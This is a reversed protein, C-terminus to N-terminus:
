LDLSEDFIFVVPLEDTGFQYVRAAAPQVEEVPPEGAPEPLFAAVEPPPAPDAARQALRGLGLPVVLLVIIAAAAAALHRGHPRRSL